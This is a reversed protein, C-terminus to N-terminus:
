IGQNEQHESIQLFLHHIIESDGTYLIGSFMGMVAMVLRGMTTSMEPVYFM